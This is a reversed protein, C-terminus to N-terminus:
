PIQFSQVLEILTRVGAGTGGKAFVDADADARSTGAIDLHAWPIGDVFEQLFMAAAISGAQGPVGINKMDAIESDIHKRYHPPMPMQWYAEGAASGAAIVQKAFGDNNAFLGGIDKGLAVIIAGTLTALDVIAHPRDEVALSLGDALVLRGEADTNLVEFTKGNRARLVDGPKIASPGPMNESLCCYGIVRIAPAIRPLVSFLALVAAAGSMDTKMTMMGDAPKISLGGSDFTIGKGVVALTPTKKTASAPSYDFRVLRPPQDSGLSVGRIGGLREREIDHEDWVRVTVGSGEIEQCRAAFIQPTMDSAPTNILDRALFTAEASQQGAALGSAVAKNAPSVITLMSITTDKAGTSRYADFRYTALLAGEAIAKAAATKDAKVPLADLLDLALGTENWGARVAAAAASRLTNATVNEGVGILIKTTAGPVVLVQGPKGLFGRRAAVDASVGSPLSPGKRNSPVAIAVASGKPATAAISVTVPM